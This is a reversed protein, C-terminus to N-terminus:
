DEYSDLSAFSEMGKKYRLFQPESFNQLNGLTASGGRFLTLILYQWTHNPLITQGLHTCPLIQVVTYPLGMLICSLDDCGLEKRTHQVRFAIHMLNGKASSASCLSSKTYLPHGHPRPFTFYTLDTWLVKSDGLGKM